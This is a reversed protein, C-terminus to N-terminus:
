WELVRASGWLCLEDCGMCHKKPVIAKSRERRYARGDIIDSISSTFINGLSTMDVEGGAEICTVTEGDHDIDLSGPIIPCVIDDMPEKRYVSEIMSEVPNIYLDPMEIRRELYWKAAEIMFDSTMKFPPFVTGMNILGDGSPIFFGLHVNRFGSELFYDLLKTAGFDIVPKTVATTVNVLVGEAQLTRVNDSWMKELKPLPRGKASVFRTDIEYSTSVFDFLKCIRLADNTVLNTVISLKVQQQVTALLERARPLLRDYFDFGLMTPEGGIVHIDALNYEEKGYPSNMFNAFQEFVALFHDETMFTSIEKKATSIYCHTCRLNCDRTTNIQLLFTKAM